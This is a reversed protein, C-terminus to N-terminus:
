HRFSYGTASPDTASITVKLPDLQTVFGFSWAETPEWRRLVKDGVQFQGEPELQPEPEPELLDQAGPLPRVEDWRYGSPDSDSM